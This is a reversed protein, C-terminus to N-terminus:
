PILNLPPAPHIGDRLQGGAAQEEMPALYCDSTSPTFVLAADCCTQAEGAYAGTAGASVRANRGRTPGRHQM